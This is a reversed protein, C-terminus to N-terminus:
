FTTNSITLSVPVLYAAVGGGGAGMGIGNALVLNELTLVAGANMSIVRVANDRSITIGDGPGTITLGATDQISLTSSLTITGSVGITITDLDPNNYAEAIAQRLSGPGSNNTNTVIYTNARASQTVGTHVTMLVLM